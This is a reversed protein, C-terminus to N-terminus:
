NEMQLERGAWKKKRKKPSTLLGVRGYSIKFKKQFIIPECKKKENNM